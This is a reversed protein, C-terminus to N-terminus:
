KRRCFGEFWGHEAKCDEDPWPGVKLGDQWLERHARRWIVPRLMELYGQETYGYPDPEFAAFVAESAVDAVV